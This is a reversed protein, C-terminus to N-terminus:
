HCDIDAGEPASISEVTHGNNTELDVPRHLVHM